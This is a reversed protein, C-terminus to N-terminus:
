KNSSKVQSVVVNIPWTVYLTRSPATLLSTNPTSSAFNTTRLTTKIDTQMKPDDQTRYITGKGPPVLLYFVQLAWESKKLAGCRKMDEVDLKKSTQMSRLLRHSTFRARCSRGECVLKSPLCETIPNVANCRLGCQDGETRKVFFWFKIGSVFHMATLFASVNSIHTM